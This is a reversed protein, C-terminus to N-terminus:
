VESPMSVSLLTAPLTSFFALALDISRRRTRLCSMPKTPSTWCNISQCMNPSLNRNTKMMEFLKELHKPHSQIGLERERFLMHRRKLFTLENGAKELVELSIKCKKRLTPELVNRLYDHKVLCLVDDVHPLLACEIQSSKLFFADGIEISCLVHMAARVTLVSSAPSFLDQRDPSPWAFERIQSGM